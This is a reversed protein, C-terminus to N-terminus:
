PLRSNNINFKLFAHELKRFLKQERFDPFRVAHMLPRGPSMVVVEGLFSPAKPVAGQEKFDCPLTGKKMSIVYNLFLFPGSLRM